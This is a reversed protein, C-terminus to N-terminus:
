SVKIDTMKKNYNKQLVELSNHKANYDDQLKAHKAVVAEYEKNVKERGLKEEKIKDELKAISKLHTNIVTNLNTV